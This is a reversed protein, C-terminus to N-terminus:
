IKYKGRTALFYAQWPKKGRPIIQRHIKWPDEIFPQMKKRMTVAWRYGAAKVCAIVDENFGGCPYAFASPATGLVQKLWDRNELVERSVEAASVRDLVTHNATHGGFEVLGSAAMERIQAPSLFTPDAEGRNTVFCTAKVQRRKLIPFLETYNDVYGDDFTLVMSRPAPAETAESLTQFTYGGRQLDVILQELETPRLSNNACKPDVVANSVSHLMLVVPLGRRVRPKWWTIKASIWGGLGLWVAWLGGRVAWPVPLVAVLIGIAVYLAVGWSIASEYPFAGSEDDDQM